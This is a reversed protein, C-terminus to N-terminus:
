SPTEETIRIESETATKTLEFRFGIKGFHIIDGHHIPVQYGEPIEQFNVWTGSQSDEDSLHFETDSKVNLRAHLGSVSPHDIWTTVERPNKGFTIEKESLPLKQSFLKKAEENYSDLMALANPSGKEGRKKPRLYRHLPSTIGKKNGNQHTLSSGKQRERPIAPLLSKPHIVGKSILFLLTFAAVLIGALSLFGLPHQKFINGMSPEPTNVIIKVPTQVSTKSLGLSDEARIRLYHNQTREYQSLDWMFRDFPPETRVQVIEGDVELSTKQLPRPHGDPFEIIVELPQFSPTYDEIPTTEQDPDPNHREIESPPTVLIPNPPQVSFVLERTTTIKGEDTDITIELQHPGVSRIGSEYSVLYTGRLSNFLTQLDPLEESGSFTFFKAETTQAMKQLQEPGVSTFFDPSSVLISFIRVNNEMARSTISQLAAIEEPTPPPTLFLVVRKMGRDSLPDSAIDIAQTLVNLNSSTERPQPQYGELTEVIDDKANTHTTELGDNSIISLDDKEVDPSEALWHMFHNSLYDWRSTGTIDQIAFPPAINVAIVLQIGPTLTQFTKLPRQSGNEILTIERSSLGSLFTGDQRYIDLYTTVEPFQDYVPPAIEAYGGSQASTPTAWALILCLAFLFRYKKDKM